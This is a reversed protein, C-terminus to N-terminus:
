SLVKCLSLSSKTSYITHLSLLGRDRIFFPLRGPPTAPTQAALLLAPSRLPGEWSQAAMIGRPCRTLASKEPDLWPGQLPGTSYRTSVEAPRTLPSRCLSCFAHSPSAPRTSYVSPSAPLPQGSLGQPSPLFLVLASGRSRRGPTNETGLPGEEPPLDGRGRMFTLVWLLLPCGSLAAPSMVPHGPLASAWPSWSLSAAPFPDGRAGHQDGECRKRKLFGLQRHHGSQGDIQDASM